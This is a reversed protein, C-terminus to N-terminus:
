RVIRTWSHDFFQKYQAYLFQRGGCTSFMVNSSGLSNSDSCGSQDPHCRGGIYHGLEHALCVMSRSVALGDNECSGDKGAPGPTPSYGAFSAWMGRVVFCDVSDNDVTWDDLLDEWEDQDDLTTYGGADANSISWWRVSSFTLGHDEYVDRADNVGNSITTNQSATYSGVKIVNVGWGAMIRCTITASISGGAERDFILEITMDERNEYRNYIGSGPPSSFTMWGAYSGNAPVVITHGWTHSGQEVLTGGVGGDWFKWTMQRRMRVQQQDGNLFTLDVATVWNPSTWDPRVSGNYISRNGPSLLLSLPNSPLVWTELYRTDAGGLSDYLTFALEAPGPPLGHAEDLELRLEGAQSEEADVRRQVVFPVGRWMVAVSAVTVSGSVPARFSASITWPRDSYIPGGEVGADLLRVEPHVATVVRNRLRAVARRDLDAIEALEALDRLPRRRRAKMLRDVAETGLGLEEILVRRPARNLDVVVPTPPVRQNLHLWPPAALRGNDVETPM